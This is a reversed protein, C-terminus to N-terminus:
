TARAGRHQGRRRERRRAVEPEDGLPEPEALRPAHRVLDVIWGEGNASSCCIRANTSSRRAVLGVHHGLTTASSRARPRPAVLERQEGRVLPQAARALQQAVRQRGARTSSACSHSPEALRSLSRKRALAARDQEADLAQPFTDVKGAFGRSGPPPSAATRPERRDAPRPARRAVARALASSGNRSSAQGLRHQAEPLADAPQDPARVVAAHEHHAIRPQRGRRVPPREEPAAPPAPARRAIGRASAARPPRPEELRVRLDSPPHRRSRARRDIRERQSSTTGTARRRASGAHAEASRARAVCPARAARHDLPPARPGRRHVAHRGAEALELIARMGASWTRSSCILRSRECEAPTPGAAGRSTTRAISRSRAAESACPCEPQRGSTTSASSASSSRSTSAPRARGPSPRRTRRGRAARAGPAAHQHALALRPEAVLRM